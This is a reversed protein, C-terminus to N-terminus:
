LALASLHQRIMVHHKFPPEALIAMFGFSPLFEKSVRASPSGKPSHGNRTQSYGSSHAGAAQRMLTFAYHVM